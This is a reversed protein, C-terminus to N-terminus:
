FWGKNLKQCKKVAKCLMSKQRKKSYKVWETGTILSAAFLKACLVTEKGGEMGKGGDGLTKVTAAM